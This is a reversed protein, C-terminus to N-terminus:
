HGRGNRVSGSLFRSQPDTGGSTAPRCLLLSAFWSFFRGEDAARYMSTTLRASWPAFLLLYVLWFVWWHSYKPQHV